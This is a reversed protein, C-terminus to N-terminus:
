RRLIQGQLESLASTRAILFNIYSYRNETFPSFDLPLLGSPKIVFIKYQYQAIFRVIDHLYVGAARAAHGFEIQIFSIREQGLLESAGKLVFFEHGEVDVKLFDIAAIGLQDALADLTICRVEVSDVNENYGITRMDYLSDTGSHQPDRSVFFTTTTQEDSLAYECVEYDSFGLARLRYSSEDLNRRLPDVLILRSTIGCTVLTESWDGKNAGADVFVADKHRNRLIHKLIRVEGNKYMNANQDNDYIQVVLRALQTLYYSKALVSAVFSAIVQKLVAPSM